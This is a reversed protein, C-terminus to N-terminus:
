QKGWKVDTSGSKEEFHWYNKAALAKAENALVSNGSNIYAEAMAMSSGVRGNDSAHLADILYLESGPEALRIMEEYAGIAADVNREHIANQIAGIARLDKDKQAVMSLCEWGNHRIQEDGSRADDLQQNVFTEHGRNVLSSHEQTDLALGFLFFALIGVIVSVAVKRRFAHVVIGVILAITLGIYVQPGIHM